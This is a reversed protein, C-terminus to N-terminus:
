NITYKLPCPTPAALLTEGKFYHFGPPPLPVQSELFYPAISVLEKTIAIDKTKFSFGILYISYDQPHPSLIKKPRRIPFDVIKIVM